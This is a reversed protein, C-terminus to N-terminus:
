APTWDNFTAAGFTYAAGTLASWICVRLDTVPAADAAFLRVGAEVGDTSTRTAAIYANATYDFVKVIRTTANYRIGLTHGKMNTTIGLGPDLPYIQSAVTGNTSTFGASQVTMSNTDIYMAKVASVSEIGVRWNGGTIGAPDSEFTFKLEKSTSGFTTASKYTVDANATTTVGGDANVSGSGGASSFVSFLQPIYKFEVTMHLNYPLDIQSVDAPFLINAVGSISDYLPPVGSGGNPLYKVANKNFILAGTENNYIKVSLLNSDTPNSLNQLYTNVFVGNFYGKMSLMAGYGPHAPIFMFLNPNEYTGYVAANRMAFFNDVAYFYNTYLNNQVAGNYSYFKGSGPYTQVKIANYLLKIAQELANLKGYQHFNVGDIRSVQPDVYLKM